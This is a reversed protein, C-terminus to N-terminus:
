FASLFGFLREAIIRAGADSPHLGDPMYKKRLIEVSPQMGSISYLDLIPISYIELVEKEADVYQKLSARPIGDGRFTSNENLRHLPTMFLIVADPYRNILRNVLSHMAGYFSFEDRDEPSGLGADGHGYDNTGGFVVVVDANPEMADVRDLFCLDHRPNNVTPKHQRAIRTGSIGYNFVQAGSIKAFVDAYRNERCSVGVGETISDGLIVVKKGKLEV